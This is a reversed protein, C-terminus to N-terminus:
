SATWRRGGGVSYSIRSADSCNTRLSLPNEVGDFVLSAAKWRAALTFGHEKGVSEIDTPVPSRRSVSTGAPDCHTLASTKALASFTRDRREFAWAFTLAPALSPPAHRARRRAHAGFGPCCPNRAVPKPFRQNVGVRLGKPVPRNEGRVKDSTPRPDVDVRDESRTGAFIRM